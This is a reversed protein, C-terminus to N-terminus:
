TFDGMETALGFRTVGAGKFGDLLGIVKEYDAQGEARIIVAFSSDRKSEEVANAVLLEKTIPQDDLYLTGDEKVTVSFNSNSVTESHAAQPLRIPITKIDSMYMTSVIFFVLLLFIMDIMPSLMMQPSDDIQRTRRRRMM